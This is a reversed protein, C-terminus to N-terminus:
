NVFNDSKLKDAASMEIFQHQYLDYYAGKQDILEEHSGMEKVKGKDLVLIKDAKEITSLRHAIIISTRGQVLMDVAKQIM